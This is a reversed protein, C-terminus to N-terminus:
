LFNLAEPDQELALNISLRFFPPPSSPIFKHGVDVIVVTILSEHRNTRLMKGSYSNKAEARRERKREDKKKKTRKQRRKQIEDSFHKLTAHSLTPPRIDMECLALECTLPLHSLFRFRDRM